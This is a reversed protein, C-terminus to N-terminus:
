PRVEAEDQSFNNEQMHSCSLRLDAKTFACASVQRTIRQRSLLAADRFFSDEPKGVLDSM